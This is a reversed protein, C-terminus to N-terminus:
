TAAKKRTEKEHGENTKRIIGKNRTPNSNRV